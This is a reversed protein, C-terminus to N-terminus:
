GEITIPPKGAEALLTNVGGGLSRVNRRLEGIQDALNEPVDDDFEKLAIALTMALENIREELDNFAKAAAADMTFEGNPPPPPPAQGRLRRAVVAVSAPTGRIEFHMEDPRRTADGLWRVVGGVESQIARITAVQSRTWTGRRGNPHRVANYDFATGSAHCSLLHPSNASAKYNYGWEDGPGYHEIPEARADLQRVVYTMVTEVDGGKIGAPFRHGRIPEWAANIGISSPVRSAPWGNYSSPM